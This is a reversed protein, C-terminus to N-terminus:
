GSDFWDDDLNPAPVLTPPVPLRLVWPDERVAVFVELAWGGSFELRLDACPSHTLHSCRVMAQGVLEAVRAGADAEESGAVLSRVGVLRWPSTTQLSWSNGGIVLVPDEWGVREVPLPLQKNVFSVWATNM